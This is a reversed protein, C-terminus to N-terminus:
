GQQSLYRGPLQCQPMVGSGHLVLISPDQIQLSSFTEISSGRFELLTGLDMFFQVLKSFTPATGQMRFQM